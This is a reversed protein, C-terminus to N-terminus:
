ALDYQWGQGLIHLNVIRRRTEGGRLPNMETVFQFSELVFPHIRSVAPLGKEAVQARTNIAEARAGRHAGQRPTAGLRGDRKANGRLEILGGPEGQQTHTGRQECHENQISKSDVADLAVQTSSQLHSQVLTLANRAIKVICKKLVDLTHQQGDVIRGILQGFSIRNAALQLVGQPERILDHRFAALSNQVKAGFVLTALGDALCQGVRTVLQRLLISRLKTDDLETSRLAQVGQDELLDESNAALCQEIRKSV